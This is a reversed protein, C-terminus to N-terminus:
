SKTKFAFDIELTKIHRDLESRTIGLKEASLTKIKFFRLADEIHKKAATAKVEKLTRFNSPAVHSRYHLDDPNIVSGNCMIVSNLIANKLERVNGPWDYSLLLDMADTSIRTVTKKCEVSSNLMFYNALDYIDDKRERLPPLTIQIVKLRDYLDHRFLKKECLEELNHNTAAIVRVDLDIEKPSGIPQVKKEELIRLIKM